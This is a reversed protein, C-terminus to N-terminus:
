KGVVHGSRGDILLGLVERDATHIVHGGMMEDITRQGWTVERDPTDYALIAANNRSNDYTAIYHLRSWLYASRVHTPIAWLSAIFPSYKFQYHGEVDYVTLHKAAKTGAVWYVHFDSFNPRESPNLYLAVSIAIALAAAFQPLRSGQGWRTKM